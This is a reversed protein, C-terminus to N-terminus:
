HKVFKRVATGSGTEVAAFYIGSSLTSLDIPVSSNVTQKKILLKGNIDMINVLMKGTTNTRINLKDEVPNPFLQLAIDADQKTIGVSAPMVVQKKTYIFDGTALNNGNAANGAAYFTVAGINTLPATWNFTFTHTNSSKGGNLQHTIGTRMPGALDASDVYTESTNTSALIGANTGADTLAELEFGFLNVGTQAVTVSIAYTKGLNYKWDTLGPANITISGTGTNIKGLHCNTCNDAGPASSFGVIGTKNLIDFSISAVAVLVAFAIVATKKM